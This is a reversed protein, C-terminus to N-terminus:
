FSFGWTLGVGIFPSIRHGDWGAGVTPGVTFAWRKTRTFTITETVTVTKDYVEISDLSAMYGSVWARYTTDAYEKQTIPVEVEATVSIATDQPTSASAISPLRVREYRVVVSDRAVPMHYLCTDYVTVVRRETKVERPAKRSNYGLLFGLGTLALIGVIAIISNFIGKM